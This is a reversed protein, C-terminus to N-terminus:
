LSRSLRDDYRDPYNRPVAGGDKNRLDTQLNRPRMIADTHPNRATSNRHTNGEGPPNNRVPQIGDIATKTNKDFWSNNDNVIQRLGPSYLTAEGTSASVSQFNQQNSAIIIRQHQQHQQLRRHRHIQQQHLHQQRQQQHLQQQQQQQGATQTQQPGRFGDFWGASPNSTVAFQLHQQCISLPSHEHDERLPLPELDIQGAIMNETHLTNRLNMWSNTSLRSDDISALSSSNTVGLSHNEHPWWSPAQANRSGHASNERIASGKGFQRTTADITATQQMRSPLSFRRMANTDADPQQRQLSLADMAGPYNNHTGRTSPNFMGRFEQHQKPQLMTISQNRSSVGGVMGNPLLFPDNSKDSNAAGDWFKTGTISTFESISIPASKADPVSERMAKEEKQKARWVIMERDYRDKDSMALSEYPGKTGSDLAKWETGITRALNAFGVGSRKRSSRRHSQKPEEQGDNYSKSAALMISKRRDQFFFNYASLPRKPMGKPKKWPILPSKRKRKTIKEEIMESSASPNMETSGVTEPVPKKYNEEGDEEREAELSSSTRSIGTSHEESKKVNRIAYEHQLQSDNDLNKRNSVDM